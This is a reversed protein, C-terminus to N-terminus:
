DLIVIVGEERGRRRDAIEELACCQSEMEERIYDERTWKLAAEDTAVMAPHEQEVPLLGPETKPKVLRSSADPENIVIGASRTRRGLLTEPTWSSGRHHSFAPPPPYNYRPTNAGEIHELVSKM